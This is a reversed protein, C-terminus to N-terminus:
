HAILRLKEALSKIIHLLHQLDPREDSQADLVPRLRQLQTTSLTMLPWLNDNPLLSPQQTIASLLHVSRIHEIDEDLSAIIWAQQILNLLPKSLCPRSHISRPLINIENLLSQWLASIDWEYRRALVTLDSEGMELLKLLWHETTIEAHARTQCLSAAAELASACYPNLRRLLMVSSNDM